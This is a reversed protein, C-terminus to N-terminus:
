RGVGCALLSTISTPNTYARPIRDWVTTAARHNATDLRAEILRHDRDVDSGLLATSSSISWALRAARM